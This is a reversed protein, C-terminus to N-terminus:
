LFRWFVSAWIVQKDLRQHVLITSILTNLNANPPLVLTPTHLGDSLLRSVLLENTMVMLM